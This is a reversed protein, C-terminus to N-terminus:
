GLALKGEMVPVCRGGIRTATVTGQEKDAEAVLLSPRGLEDGQSIATVFTMDLEPRIDALLGALAVNAAGTAADETVGAGPAFVRAKYGTEGPGTGPVPAYLEIGAAIETPLLKAFAAPDPRARVVVEADTVRAFVWPLGCSAACPEHADGDIEAPSIGCCAAIVDAAVPDGRKFAQPSTLRAGVPVGDERHIEVPVLGAHEEFYVTGGISKGFVESIRALAFATGVNPHGAFPLETRPTFIRVEATHAPNAPPRVFTTEAYSFESAISQMMGNALGGADLVVALQNGGFRTATFVDVTVYDLRM